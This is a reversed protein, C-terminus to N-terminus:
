WLYCLSSLILSFLHSQRIEHERHGTYAGDNEEEPTVHLLRRGDELAVHLVNTVPKFFFGCSRGLWDRKEIERGREINIIQKISLSKAIFWFFITSSDEPDHLKKRKIWLKHLINFLCTLKSRGESSKNIKKNFQGYRKTM